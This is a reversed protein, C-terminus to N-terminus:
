WCGLGKLNTASVSQKEVVKTEFQQDLAPTYRACCLNLLGRVIHTHQTQVARILLDFTSPTQPEPNLPKCSDLMCVNNSAEALDDSARQQNKELSFLLVPAPQLDRSALQGIGMEAQCVPPSHRNIKGRWINRRMTTKTQLLVHLGSSFCDKRATIVLSSYLLSPLSILTHQKGELRLM